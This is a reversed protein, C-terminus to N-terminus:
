KHKYNCQHLELVLKWDGAIVINPDKLCQLNEQLTNFLQPVDKNPGNTLIIEKDM